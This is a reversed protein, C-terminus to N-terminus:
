RKKNLLTQGQAVSEELLRFMKEIEALESEKNKKLWAARYQALWSETDTLRTVGYGWLKMMLEAMVAVGRIAILIEQRFYDNTWSQLRLEEILDLCQNRVERLESEKRDAVALKGPFYLNNYMWSLDGYHVTREMQSVRQLIAFTGSHDYILADTCTAVTQADTSTNWSRAAGYAMGFLRMDTGCPDGYDGWNTNLVGMAGYQKGLQTMHTINPVSEPLHECFHNWAWTAPCVIQPQVAQSFQRVKEEAEHKDAGYFWNLFITDKPIGQVHDMHQLIVDGWMMVQKGQTKLYAILQNVFDIYLKGIDKDRHKGKQLDFTEDCCINFKDSRFLPLFQDIMGKILSFSEPHLPDITHHAMREQWYLHQPEYNELVQLHKYQPKELLEYLHGFCSLSPILEVYNEHCYDDLERIEQATLCGTRGVSDSYERFAFSHEVYLQFSNVKMYALYDVLEKLTELTPIKGRTVDHYYGRFAFDPADEVHCAFVTENSLLQRLTQVGYFAGITSPATIVVGANTLDLTYSEGESGEVRITLPLGDDSHPLKQIAKTLREEIGVYDFAITKNYIIDKTERLIKPTPILHM